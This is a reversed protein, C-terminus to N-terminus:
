VKRAGRGVKRCVLVQLLLKNSKSSVELYTTEKHPDYPM